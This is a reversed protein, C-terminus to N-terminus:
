QCYPLLSAVLTTKLDVEVRIFLIVFNVLLFKSFRPWVFNVNLALGSRPKMCINVDSRPQMVDSFNPCLSFVVCNKNVFLCFITINVNSFPAIVLCWLVLPPTSSM